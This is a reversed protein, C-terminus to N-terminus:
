MCTGSTKKMDQPTKNRVHSFFTNASKIHNQGHM